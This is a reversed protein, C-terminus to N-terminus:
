SPRGDPWAARHRPAQAPSAEAATRATQLFDAARPAMAPGFAALEFGLRLELDARDADLDLVSRLQRRQLPQAPLRSQRFLVARRWVLLETYLVPLRRGGAQSLDARQQEAASSLRAPLWLRAVPTCAARRTWARVIRAGAGAVSLSGDLPLAQAVDDYGRPVNEPARVNRAWSGPGLGHACTRMRM